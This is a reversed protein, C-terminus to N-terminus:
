DDDEDAEDDDADEDDPVLDETLVIDFPEDEPAEEPELYGVAFATSVTEAELTVDVDFVADDRDGSPYISITYDGAPVETYDSEGYEVDEFLADGDAVIDVSPADPSVHAARIRATDEDVESNDDELVLPELPENEDALEGIAAITFDGEEVEIEEDIVADDPDEGTPVIQLTYEDPVALFYESVTKFPVDQLIGIGEVYVDVEPADPSLHAARIRAGTYADEEDNDATAATSGLAGIVLASGGIKVADRRSIDFIEAMCHTDIRYLAFIEYSANAVM